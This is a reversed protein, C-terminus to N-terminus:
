ATQTVIMPIAVGRELHGGADFAGDDKLRVEGDFRIDDAEEVVADRSSPREGGEDIVGRGELALHAEVLHVGGAEVADEGRVDDSADEARALGDAAHGGAVAARAAADDVDRGARGDM